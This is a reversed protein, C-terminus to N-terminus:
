AGGDDGNIHATYPTRAEGRPLTQQSVWRARSAAAGRRGRGAAMAPRRLCGAKHGAVGLGRWTDRGTAWVTVRWALARWRATGRVGGGGRRPLVEAGPVETAPDRGPRPLHVPARAERPDFGDLQDWPTLAGKACTFPGGMPGRPWAAARDQLLRARRGGQRAGRAERGGARRPSRAAARRLSGAAFEGGGRLVEGAPPPRGQAEDEPAVAQRQWVPACPSGPASAVATPVAASRAGGAAANCRLSGRMAAAASAAAPAAASAVALAAAPARRQVLRSVACAPAELQRGPRASRAGV